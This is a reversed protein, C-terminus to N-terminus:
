DTAARIADAHRQLLAEPTLARAYLPDALFKALVARYGTWIAPWDPNAWDAVIVSALAM